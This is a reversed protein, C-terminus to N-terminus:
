RSVGLWKRLETKAKEYGRKHSNKASLKVQTFLEKRTIHPWVVDWVANYLDEVTLASNNLLNTLAIGEPTDKYVLAHIDFNLNISYSRSNQSIYYKWESKESLSMLYSWSGSNNGNGGIVINHTPM